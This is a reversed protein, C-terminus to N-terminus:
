ATGTTVKGEVHFTAKYRIASKVSADVTYETCRAEGSYKPYGATSGAPYYEFSQTAALGPLGSFVTNSGTTATDDFPGTVTFTNDPLGVVTKTGDDGAATVDDTAYSGPLGQVDSVGTIQQLAAAANDCKFVLDKGHRTAM